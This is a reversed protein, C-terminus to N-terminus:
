RIGAKEELGIKSHVVYDCFSCLVPVFCLFKVACNKVSLIWGYIYRTFRFVGCCFLSFPSSQSSM